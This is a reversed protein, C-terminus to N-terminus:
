ASLVIRISAFTYLFMMLSQIFDRILELIDCHQDITFNRNLLTLEVKPCEAGSIEFDKLFKDKIKDRLGLFADQMSPASKIEVDENKDKDGDGEKDGVGSGKGKGSGDSAGDGKGGKDSNGNGGGSNGTGTGTNNSNSGGRKDDISSGDGKGGSSGSNGQNKDDNNTKNSLENLSLDESCDGSGSPTVCIRKTGDPNDESIYKRRCLGDSSNEGVVCTTGHEKDDSYGWNKKGDKDEFEQGATLMNAFYNALECNGNKLANKLANTIPKRYQEPAKFEIHYGYVWVADAGFSYEDKGYHVTISNSSSKVDVYQGGGAGDEQMNKVGKLKCQSFDYEDPKPNLGKVFQWQKVEFANGVSSWPYNSAFLDFSLFLFSLLIILSQLRTHVGLRM